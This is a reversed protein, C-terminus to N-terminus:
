ESRHVPNNFYQEFEQAPPRDSYIYLTIGNPDLIAFGRDGWPHDDIPMIPTLGECTLREYEADVDAVCFSYTLGATNCVPSGSEQPAMFQLGFTESGIQFNVHWGCDFTVNADFHRVYFDRSEGVKETVICASLSKAIMEFNRM